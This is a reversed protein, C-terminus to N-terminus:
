NIHFFGIFKTKWGPLLSKSLIYYEHYLYPGFTDEWLIDLLSNFGKEGLIYLKIKRILHLFCLSKVYEYLVQTYYFKQSVRPPFLM